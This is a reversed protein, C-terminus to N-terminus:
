KRIRRYAGMSGLLGLGALAATPVPVVQVTNFSLNDIALQSFSSGVPTVLISTINSGLNSFGIFSTFSSFAATSFSQTEILTSGNFVDVIVSGPQFTAFDMVAVNFGVASVDNTFGIEISAGFANSTLSSSAFSFSGGPGSVVTNLGANPTSLEIGLSNYFSDSNGTFDGPAALGEFDITTLSPNATSFVTTDTFIDAQASSAVASVAILLASIKTIRTM